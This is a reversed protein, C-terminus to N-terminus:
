LDSQRPYKPYKTIAVSFLHLPGQMTLPCDIFCLTLSRTGAVPATPGRLCSWRGESPDAKDNVVIHSIFNLCSVLTAVTKYFIDVCVCNGLFSIYLWWAAIVLILRLVSTWSSGTPDQSSPFPLLQHVWSGLERRVASVVSPFGSAWGWWLTILKWPKKNQKTKWPAPTQVPM